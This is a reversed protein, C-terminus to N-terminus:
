VTESGMGMRHHHRSHARPAGRPAGMRESPLLSPRTAHHSHAGSCPAPHHHHRSHACLAGRPADMRELPLLSPRTAHHSHAGSCPALHHRSHARPADSPVVGRTPPHLYGKVCLPTWQVCRRTQARTMKAHASAYLTEARTCTTEATQFGTLAQFDRQLECARKM